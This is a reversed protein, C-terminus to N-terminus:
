SILRLRPILLIRRLINKYSISFGEVKEEANKSSEKPKQSYKKSVFQNPFVEGEEDEFLKLKLSTDDKKKQSVVSNEIKQHLVL